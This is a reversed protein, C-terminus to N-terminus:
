LWAYVYYTYLQVHFFSKGIEWLNEGGDLIFSRMGIFNMKWEIEKGNYRPICEIISKGREIVRRIIEFFFFFSWFSVSVLKLKWDPLPAEQYKVWFIRLTRTVEAVFSGALCRHFSRRKTIRLYKEKIHSSGVIFRSEFVPLHTKRPRTKM